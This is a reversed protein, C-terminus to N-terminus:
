THTKNIIAKLKKVLKKVNSIYEKVMEPPLWNEYFNQHLAIASAWLTRAERDGLETVFKHLEGHSRLVRGEKAALAKVAQSAAGWAKESAQVYDGKRLLEEAERLYKDCLSLYVEARRDPDLGLYEALAEAVLEEGSVGRREAERRVVDEVGKPLTVM